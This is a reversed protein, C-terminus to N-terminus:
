QYYFPLKMMSIRRGVQPAARVAMHLEQHNRNAALDNCYVVMM